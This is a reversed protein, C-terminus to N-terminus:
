WLRDAVRELHEEMADVRNLVDADTKMSHFVNFYLQLANIIIQAREPPDRIITQLRDVNEALNSEMRQVAATIIETRRQQVQRMFEHDKRLEYFKTTKIGAAALIDKRRSNTAFADIVKESYEAM